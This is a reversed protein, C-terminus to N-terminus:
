SHAIAVGMDKTIAMKGNQAIEAEVYSAAPNAPDFVLKGTPPAFVGRVTTVMMHRTSFAVTTHAPDFKWTAM